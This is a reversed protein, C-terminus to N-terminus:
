KSPHSKDSCSLKEIAMHELILKVRHDISSAPIAISRFGFKQYVDRHLQEFVLSDEFSIQRADTNSIFGLNDIFFVDKEYISQKEIREIEQMLDSSPKFNLYKALAYTCIPSRDYFHLESYHDSRDMQRHRQISVVDDIFDINEWPKSVGQSQRYAIIDTAAEAVTSVGSMELARIVSTKGCGPAGTLIYRKMTKVERESPKNM